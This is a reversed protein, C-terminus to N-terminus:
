ERGDSDVYTVGTPTKGDAALNIKTVESLTRAKFNPQRVLAPPVCTQPSSKSCNACGFWECFGCYTCPAM